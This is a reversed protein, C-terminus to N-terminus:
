VYRYLLYCLIDYTIYYCIVHIIYIIYRDINYWNCSHYTFKRYSGNGFTTVTFETKCVM